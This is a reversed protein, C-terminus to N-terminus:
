YKHILNNDLAHKYNLLGDRVEEKDQMDALEQALMSKMKRWAIHAAVESCFDGLNISKGTMDSCRSRFKGNGRATVGIMFSGRTARSDTIFSNVLSSVLMCKDPAYEKNGICALDKDLCLNENHSREDYWQAFNQFNHWEACVTCGKYTPFKAQYNQDYCRAMMSHWAIYSDSRKRGSSTKHPGVGIFGVGCVSKRMVDKVYGLRIHTAIANTEHGTDIFRIKVKSRNDYSLVVIDGNSKTKHVSGVQMDHPIKM